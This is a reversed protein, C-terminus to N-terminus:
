RNRGARSNSRSRRGARPPVKLLAPLPRDDSFHVSVSMRRREEAPVDAPAQRFLAADVTKLLQEASAAFEDALVQYQDSRVVGDSVFQFQRFEALQRANGEVTRLLSLVVGVHHIRQLHSNHRLQNLRGRPLYLHKDQIVAATETLSRLIADPDARRDITRVLSAVSLRGKAPLPRPNGGAVYRPLLHWRTLVEGPIDQLREKSPFEAGVWHPTSRLYREFEDRMAARSYNRRALLLITLELVERAIDDLPIEAQRSLGRASRRKGADSPSKAKAM